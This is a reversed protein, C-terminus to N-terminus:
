CKQESLLHQMVLNIYVLSAWKKFPFGVSAMTLQSVLLQSFEDTVEAFM